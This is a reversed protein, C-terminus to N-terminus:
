VILRDRLRDALSRADLAAEVEELVRLVDCGAAAFIAEQEAAIATWVAQLKPALQVGKTSLAVVRKRADGVFPVEEVLGAAIMDRTIQIMGPHSLGTLSALATVHLPGDRHLAQYTSTWRPEFPIGMARYAEDAGDLLTVALRKFRRALVVSGLQRVPEPAVARRPRRDMRSEM